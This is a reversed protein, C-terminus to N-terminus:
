VTRFALQNEDNIQLEGSANCYFSVVSFKKFYVVLEKLTPNWIDHSAIKNSLYSFNDEVHKDIENNKEFLKGQHYNLEASFYTHGIFLGCEKILLDINTPHLGMKFDIMELTQFGTFTKKTIDHNFIVPTYEALSYVKHKKTNWFLFVPLLLKLLKFVNRFMEIHKRYSKKSRISKYYKAISRYLRLSDDDNFHHFIINKILMSLRVSFTFHKIGKYYSGLTFQSSNLQNIVGRVSTGSDIYNWFMEIGKSKLFQGYDDRIPDYNDYLSFNYPQFGHDIWTNINKFPPKLNKFDLISDDLPKISQSLSHYALEHGDEQWAKIEEKHLEFSATDARKSYHNLFFGKTIKINHTKFFQRQQRLNSLTDFDCHDTFCVISSFPIQSRSVEIGNEKPFLLSLPKLFNIKFVAKKIQKVNNHDYNVLPQANKVNFHWFLVKPHKSDVEWIGIHQNAQVIQNNGLILIKPAYWNSLRRCDIPKWTYDHNRFKIIPSNFTIKYTLSDDNLISSDIEVEHKHLSSFAISVTSKEKLLQISKIM